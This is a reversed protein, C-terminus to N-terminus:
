QGHPLPCLRTNLTRLATIMHQRGAARRTALRAGPDGHGGQDAAPGRFPGAAASEPAADPGASVAIFVTGVPQGDAPDPRGRRDHRRRGHRGPPPLRGQAMAAAVAPHVTGHRDLLDSPVGLLAAKLEAAYSVIGGRFAASSGPVATLAAAILGGTLSEAVALTQGRAVLM